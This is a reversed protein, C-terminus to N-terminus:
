VLEQILIGLTGPGCHVCSVPSLWTEGDIKFNPIIDKIEAVLKAKIDEGNAHTLFIEKPKDGLEILIKSVEEAIYHIAKARGRVKALTEYKGDDGVHIIPKLNLMNGLAGSVRGIRGGQILYKLTDVIFFTHQHSRMKNLLDVIEDVSKGENALIAAHRAMTALPVSITKSDYVTVNPYDHAVASVANYCGSLGSSLTIILIEPTTCSEIVQHIEEMSPLSTTPTEKDLNDVVDKPTIDVQDLYTKDKYVIQYHLMKIAYCEQDEMSLDSATDAIITVRKM